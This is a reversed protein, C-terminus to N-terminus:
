SACPVEMTIVTPGGPPSAVDVSGDFAAMRRRVGALGGGPGDGNASGRGNDGVAVVIRGDVRRIRVWARSAGSHKVVNALTEAIAFYVAAELPAPVRGRDPADVDVPVPLRLALAEVAGVLGREALVPPHLGRVLRRLEALAEGSATRAEILLEAAADPDTRLLQEALGINMGLAVLRAQAGDHLDREIRRLEAASADVVEARSEALEGVRAELQERPPGLLTASFRAHGRLITAHYRLVLAFAAVGLVIAIPWYPSPAVIWLIPAAVLGWVGNLLLVAPLLGLAFGVPINAATWGLDRGSSPGIRVGSWDWARRREAGAFRRMPARALGLTVVTVVLVGIGGLLSAAALGLGRGCSRLLATM